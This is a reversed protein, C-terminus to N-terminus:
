WQLSLTRYNDVMKARCQRKGRGAKNVFPMRVTHSLFYLFISISKTKFPISLNMGAECYCTRVRGTYLSQTAHLLVDQGLWQFVLCSDTKSGCMSTSKRKFNMPANQACNLRERERKPSNLHAICTARVGHGHRWECWMLWCGNLHAAYM